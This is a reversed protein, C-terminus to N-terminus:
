QARHAQLWVADDPVGQALHGTAIGIAAERLFLSDKGGVPSALADLLGVDRRPGHRGHTPTARHEKSLCPARPAQNHGACKGIATLAPWHPKVTCRLWIWTPSSGVGYSGVPSKIFHTNHREEQSEDMPLLLKPRRPQPLSVRPAATTVDKSLIFSPSLAEHLRQKRPQRSWAQDNPSGESASEARLSIRPPTYAASGGQRRARM